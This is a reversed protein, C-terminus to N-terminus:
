EQTPRDTINQGLLRHAFARDEKVRHQLQTVMTNFSTPGDCNYFSSPTETTLARAGAIEAIVHGVHPSPVPSAIKVLLMNLM